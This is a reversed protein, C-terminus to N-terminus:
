KCPSAAIRCVRPQQRRCTATCQCIACLTPIGRPRVRCGASGTWGPDMVIDRTTHSPEATACNTSSVLSDHHVCILGTRTAITSSLEGPRGPLLLKEGRAPELIRGVAARFTAGRGFGHAVCGRRTAIGLALHVLDGARLAALRGAHWELRPQILRDIAAVTEALLAGAAGRSARAILRKSPAPRPGALAPASM